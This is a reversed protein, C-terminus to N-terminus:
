MVKPLPSPEQQKPGGEGEAGAAESPQNAKHHKAKKPKRKICKAVEVPQPSLYRSSVYGITSDKKVKIQSWNEIEGLKEVAANLELTSTKPCELGPCARLVLRNSTVYFTPHVRRPLPAVTGMPPPPPAKDVRPQCGMLCIVLGFACIWAGAHRLGIRVGTGVGISADSHTIAYAM